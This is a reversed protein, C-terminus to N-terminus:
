LNGRSPHRHPRHAVVLDEAPEEFDLAVAPLREAAARLLDGTTACYHLTEGDDLINLPTM